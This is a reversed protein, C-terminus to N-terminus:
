IFVFVMMSTKIGLIISSFLGTIFNSSFLNSDYSTININNDASLVNFNMIISQITLLIDDKHYSSFNLSIDKFTLFEIGSVINLSLYVISLIGLQFINSISNYIYILPTIDILYGGLFLISTLVCILVISTYEALFFFVFIVAAHETM